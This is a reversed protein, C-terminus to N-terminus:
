DLTKKYDLKNMADLINEVHRPSGIKRVEVADGFERYGLRAADKIGDANVYGLELEVGNEDKGLVVFLEKM